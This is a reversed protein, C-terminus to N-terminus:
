TIQFPLQYCIFVKEVDHWRIPYKVGNAWYPRVMKNMVQASFFTGAMAWDADSPRFAWM